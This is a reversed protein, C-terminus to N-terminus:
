EETPKTETNDVDILPIIEIRGLDEKYNKFIFNIFEEVANREEITDEQYTEKMVQLAEGSNSFLASDSRVLGTPINNFAMMINKFVSNETYNFMKDNIDSKIQEITIADKLEEGDFELEVHLVGGNNEAGLFGEMMDKFDDRESVAKKYDEVTDYDDKSGSLPRTIALTKGFFGKRLARNKFISAQRESDSDNVVPDITGLAYDYEDDLNLYAVQGKYKDVGGATEM